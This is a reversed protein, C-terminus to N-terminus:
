EDLKWYSPLSDLCKQMAGVAENRVDGSFGVRLKEPSDGEQKLSFLYTDKVAAFDISLKSASSMYRFVGEGISSKSFPATHWDSGAPIMRELSLSSGDEGINAVGVLTIQSTIISKGIDIQVATNRNKNFYVLSCTTNMKRVRTQVDDTAKEFLVETTSADQALAPSIVTAGPFMAALVIISNKMLLGKIYDAVQTVLQNL